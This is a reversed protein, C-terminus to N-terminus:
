TSLADLPALPLHKRVLIRHLVTTYTCNKDREEREVTGVACRKPGLETHGLLLFLSAIM